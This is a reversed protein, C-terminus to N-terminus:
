GRDDNEVAVEYVTVAAKAMLHMTHPSPLLPLKRVGMKVIVEAIAEEIKGELTEVTKTDL